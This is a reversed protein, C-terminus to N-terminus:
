IVVQVIRQARALLTPPLEAVECRVEKFVIGQLKLRDKFLAMYRDIQLKLQPKDATFQLSSQQGDLEADVLLTGLEALQFQLNLRWLKHSQGDQRKAERQEILMETMQPEKGFACPLQFYWQQQGPQQIDNTQWQALQLQLSQQSVKGALESLQGADLKTILQQLKDLKADTTPPPLNVGLRGLVLQLVLALTGAGSSSTAAQLPQFLLAATLQQQLMSETIPTQTQPYSQIVEDLVAQVASQSSQLAPMQLSQVLPRLNAPLPDAVQSTASGLLLNLLQELPQRAPREGGLMNVASPTASLSSSNVHPQQKLKSSSDPEADTASTVALVNTPSSTKDGGAISAHLNTTGPALAPNTPAKTPLEGTLEGTLGGSLGTAVVGTSARALRSYLPHPETSSQHLSVKVATSIGVNRASNTDSSNVPINSERPLPIQEPWQGLPLKLQQTPGQLTLQGTASMQWRVPWPSSVGVQQLQKVSLSAPLLQEALSQLLQQQEGATFAFTKPGLVLQLSPPNSNPQWQLQAKRTQEAGARALQQRMQSGLAIAPQDASVKLQGQQVEVSLTQAATPDRRDKLLLPVLQSLSLQPELLPTLTVVLRQQPSTQLQVQWSQPRNNAQQLQNQASSSFSKWPIDLTVGAALVLRLSDPLVQSLASTKGTQSLQALADTQSQTLLSTLSTLDSNIQNM